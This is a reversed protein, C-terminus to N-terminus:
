KILMMSKSSVTKYNFRLRCIYVGSSWKSVDTLLHYIGPEQYQDVLTVINRGVIDFVELQVNGSEFLSYSITTKNNFPNPFNQFLRIRDALFQEIAVETIIGVSGERGTHQAYIGGQTRWFAVVVGGNKDGEFVDFYTNGANQIYLVPNAWRRNGTFDYRQAIGAENALVLGGNGDSFAYGGVQSAIEPFLIRTYQGLHDFHYITDQCAYLYYVGGNGDPTLAGRRFPIVGECGSRISFQANWVTDGMSNLKLIRLGTEGSLVFVASDRDSVMFAYGGIPTQTSLLGSHTLVRTGASSTFFIREQTRLLNKYQLTHQAYSSDLIREWVMAGLNSIHQIRTRERGQAGPFGFESESWAIVCGGQGDNVIGGKKIGTEPGKVLVGGYAWRVVGLRDVRQVYIANNAWDPGNIHAGRHDYWFLIVGGDGDSIWGGWDGILPAETIYSSDHHMVQVPPWLYYGREDLKRAYIYSDLAGLVISSGNDFTVIGPYFGPCVYLASEALTSTSWQAVLPSVWFLTIGLIFMRLRYQRMPSPIRSTM